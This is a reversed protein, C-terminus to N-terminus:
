ILIHAVVILVCGDVVAWQGGGVGNSGCCCSSSVRDFDQYCPELHPINNKNKNGDSM